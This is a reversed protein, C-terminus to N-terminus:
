KLAEQCAGMADISWDAVNSMPMETRLTERAWRPFDDKGPKPTNFKRKWAVYLANLQSATVVPPGDAQMPAPATSENAAQAAKQREERTVDVPQTPDREPAPHANARRGDDDSDITIGLVNILSHRKAFSMASASIQASSMISTGSARCSFKSSTEHGEVHTLTCTVVTTDGVVDTDWKYILDNDFLVPDSVKTIEELDAFRYAVVGPTTVQGNRDVQDKTKGGDRNKVIPPLNRRFLKMARNFANRARRADVREKLAVIKELVAVDQRNSVAEYLIREISPEEPIEGHSVIAGGDAEALEQSTAPDIVRAEREEILEATAM